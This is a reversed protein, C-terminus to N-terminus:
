NSRDSYNSILPKCHNLGNIIWQSNARGKSFDKFFRYNLIYINDEFNILQLSYDPSAAIEKFGSLVHYCMTIEVFRLDNDDDEPLIIGVEYPFCMYMDQPNIKLELVQKLSFKSLNQSMEAVVDPTVLDKLSKLDGKSIYSSVVGVAERSGLIFQELDFGQDYRQQIIFRSLIANKAYKLFSPWYVIPLDTLKPLGNGRPQSSCFRNRGSINSDIRNFPRNHFGRVKYVSLGNLVSNLQFVPMLFNPRKLLRMFCTMVSCNM